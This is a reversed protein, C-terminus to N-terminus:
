SDNEPRLNSCTDILKSLIYLGLISAVSLVLAHYWGLNLPLNSRSSIAYFTIPVVLVVFMLTWYRLPRRGLYELAQSGFRQAALLFALSLAISLMMFTPSASMKYPPFILLMVASLMVAGVLLEKTREINKAAIVGGLMVPLYFVAAPYGGLYYATFDPLMQLTQLIFYLLFVALGGAAIVISPFSVLLIGPIFCLASLMVEDMGFFMGSSFPSLLFAIMVLKGFREITELAFQRKRYKRYFFVLSMGSAFLFMPLVFDGFHLSGPVNHDLFDPLSGSLRALMTFFVMLLISLGRFTDIARVRM